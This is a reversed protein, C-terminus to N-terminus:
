FNTTAEQLLPGFVGVSSFPGELKRIRKPLQFIQLWMNCQLMTMWAMILSQAVAAATSLTLIAAMQRGIEHALETPLADETKSELTLVAPFVHETAGYVRLLTPPCSAPLYPFLSPIGSHQRHRKSAKTNWM